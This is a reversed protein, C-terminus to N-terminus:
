ILYFELASQLIEEEGADPNEQQIKMLGQNIEEESADPFLEKGKQLLFSM